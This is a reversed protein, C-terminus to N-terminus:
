DYGGLGGVQSAFATSVSRADEEHDLASKNVPVARGSGIPPQVAALGGSPLGFAANM